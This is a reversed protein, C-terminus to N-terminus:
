SLPHTPQNGTSNNSHIGDKHIQSEGSINSCSERKWDTLSPSLLERVKFFERILKELEAKECSFKLLLSENGPFLINLHLYSTKSDIELKLDIIRDLPIYAWIGGYRSQSQREEDHIIIFESETLIAIGPFIKIIPFFKFYKQSVVPQYIMRHIKEGPLISDKAYNMYKYDIKMLYDFKQQEGFLEGDRSAITNIAIRLSQILQEFIYKVATNFEIVIIFANNHTNGTIKLWSYLLLTGREITNINEFECDITVIENKVKEAFFINHDFIAILKANTKKLLGWKDPPAYVIYPFRPWPGESSPFVKKFEEPIEQYSQIVSAWFDTESPM